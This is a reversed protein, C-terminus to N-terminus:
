RRERTRARSRLPGRDCGRVRSHQASTNTAPTGPAIPIRSHSYTGLRIRRSVPPMTRMRATPRRTPLNSWTAAVHGACGASRTKRSSLEVEGRFVARAAGGRAACARLLSFRASPASGRRARAPCSRPRSDHGHPRPVTQAASVRSHRSRSPERVRSAAREAAQDERCWCQGGSVLQRRTAASTDYRSGCSHLSDQSRHRSRSDCTPPTSCLGHTGPVRLHLPHHGPGSGVSLLRARSM